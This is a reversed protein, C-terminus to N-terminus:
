VVIRLLKYVTVNGKIYFTMARFMHICLGGLVISSYPLSLALDQDWVVSTVTPTEYSNSCM